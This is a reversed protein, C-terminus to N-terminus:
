SIHQMWFTVTNESKVALPIISVIITIMMFVDYASSLGGQSEETEIVDYIRKRLASDEM